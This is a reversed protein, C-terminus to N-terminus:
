FCIQVDNLSNIVSVDLGNKLSYSLFVMSVPVYLNVVYNRSFKNATGSLQDKNVYNNFENHLTEKFLESLDSEPTHIDLLILIHASNKSLFQAM